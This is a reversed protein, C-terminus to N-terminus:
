EVKQEARGEAEGPPRKKRRRIERAVEIIPAVVPPEEKSEIMELMSEGAWRVLTSKSNIGMLEAIDGLKAITVEDMKVSLNKKPGPM